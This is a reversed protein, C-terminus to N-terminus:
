AALQALPPLATIAVGRKEFAELSPLVVQAKKAYARHVAKSDHGLAIQAFREPYGATKAREAWAYRYCHLSVGEIKLKRCARAFISARQGEPMVALKPFLPGEAPLTRLLAELEDGIQIIQVAKTKMRFFGVVRGTWDVDKAQLNAVDSQAGGLHWCMELFARREANNENQVLRAHEEATIARKEQYRIAPWQKKALVPWPLWNMGQAFSHLRRLFVNTSVTGQELAHLLHVPQTEVLKLSRISDFAPDNIAHTCRLQTNGRKTRVYEDMVKQWNRSTAEPDVASLYAQALQRNLAPQRHSENKAHLLTRAEAEDKTRLSAQKGTVADESYFVAGRRFM